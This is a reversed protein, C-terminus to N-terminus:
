PDSLLGGVAVRISSVSEFTSRRLMEEPFEIDFHAELALMVAVSAHSTMGAHFLNDDHGLAGADISLQGHTAVIGLIDEVIDGTQTTM